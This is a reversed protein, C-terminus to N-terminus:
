IKALFITISRIITPIVPISCSGIHHTAVGATPRASRRSKLPIHVCRTDPSFGLRGSGLLSLRLVPLMWSATNGFIRPRALAVRVILVLLARRSSASADWGWPGRLLGAARGIVVGRGRPLLFLMILLMLMLLGFVRLLWWMRTPRRARRGVGPVSRGVLVMMLGSWRVWPWSSLWVLTLSFWALNPGLLLVRRSILSVSSRTWRELTSSSRIDGFCLMVRPHLTIYWHMGSFLPM